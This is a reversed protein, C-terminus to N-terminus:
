ELALREQFGLALAPSIPRIFYGTYGNEAMTPCSSIFSARSSAATSQRILTSSRPSLPAPLVVVARPRAVRRGEGAREDIQRDSGCLVTEESAQVDFASELAIRNQLGPQEGFGMPTHEVDILHVEQGRM